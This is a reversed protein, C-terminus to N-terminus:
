EGRTRERGRDREIEADRETEQPIERGYDRLLEQRHTSRQAEERQVAQEQSETPATAERKQAPPEPSPASAGGGLLGALTDALTEIAKGALDGVADLARAAGAAAVSGIEAAGHGAGTTPTAESAPEIIAAKDM